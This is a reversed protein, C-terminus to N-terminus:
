KIKSKLENLIVAIKEEITKFKRKEKDAFILFLAMKQNKEELLAKLENKNLRWAERLQRKIRNRDTALKFKKKPVSFAVQLPADLEEDLIFRVMLPFAKITQGKEFVTDIVKKKCLREDKSFTAKVKNM